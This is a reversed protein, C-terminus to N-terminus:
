LRYSRVDTAFNFSFDVKPTPEVDKSAQPGFLYSDLSINTERSIGFTDFLARGRIQWQDTSVKTIIGSTVGEIASDDFGEGLSLPNMIPLITSGNAVAIQSLSSLIPFIGNSLGGKGLSFGPLSLFLTSSLSDIVLLDDVDLAEAIEIISTLISNALKPSTLLDSSVSKFDIDSRVDKFRFYTAASDPEFLSLVTVNRFQKTLSTVLTTKGTGAGGLIAYCGALPNFATGVSTKELMITSFVNIPKQEVTTSITPTADAEVSQQDPKKEALVDAKALERDVRTRVRQNELVAATAIIEEFQAIGKAKLAPKLSALVQNLLDVLEHASLSTTNTGPGYVVASFPASSPDVNDRGEIWIPSATVKKVFTAVSNSTTVELGGVSFKYLPSM